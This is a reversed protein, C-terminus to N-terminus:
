AKATSSRIAPLVRELFGALAAGAALGAAFGLILKALGGMGARRDPATAEAVVQVLSTEKAEGIRAMERQTTLLKYLEVQLKLRRELEFQELALAPVKRVAPFLWQSEEGDGGGGSRIGNRALESLKEGLRRVEARLVEVQPNTKSYVTEMVQLSIEKSIRRAELEGIVMATAKLGEDVRVIRHKEQFARWADQAARMDKDVQALREDLFRRERGARGVSIERDIRGLIEVYANAMDAAARPVRDTVTISILGGKTVEFKSAGALAQRTKVRTAIGYKEMLKFRDILADAVKQSKLIDVYREGPNDLGLAEAPLGGVIGSLRAAMMDTGTDPAPPLILTTAEYKRPLGYHAALALLAGALTCAAVLRRRKWLILAYDLLTPEDAPSQPNRVTFQPNGRGPESGPVPSESGPVPKRQTEAPGRSSEPARERDFPPIATTPTDEVAM